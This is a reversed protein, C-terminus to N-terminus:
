HHRESESGGEEERHPVREQMQPLEQRKKQLEGALLEAQIPLAARIVEKGIGRNGQEDAAVAPEPGSQHHERPKAAIREVRLGLLQLQQFFQGSVPV